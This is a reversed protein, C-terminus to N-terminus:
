TLQRGFQKYSVMFRAHTHLPRRMLPSLPALRAIMAQVCASGIIKDRDM